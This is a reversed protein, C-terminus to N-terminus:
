RVILGELVSNRRIPRGCFVELIILEQKERGEVLGMFGLTDALFRSKLSSM